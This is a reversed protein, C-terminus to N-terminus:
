WFNLKRRKKQFNKKYSFIGKTEMLLFIFKLGALLMPLWPDLPSTFFYAGGRASYM